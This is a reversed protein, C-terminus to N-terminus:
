VIKNENGLKPIYSICIVKPYKEIYLRSWPSSSSIAKKQKFAIHNQSFKKGKERNNDFRKKKNAENRNTSKM